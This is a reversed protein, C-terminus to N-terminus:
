CSESVTHFLPLLEFLPLFNLHLNVQCESLHKSTKIELGHWLKPSKPLHLPQSATSAVSFPLEKTAGGDWGDGEKGQPQVQPTRQAKEPLRFFFIGSLIGHPAELSSWSSSCAPPGLPLEPANPISAQIEQFQLPAPVRGPLQVPNQARM